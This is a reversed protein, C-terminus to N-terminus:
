LLEVLGAMVTNQYEEKGADGFTGLELVGWWVVGM